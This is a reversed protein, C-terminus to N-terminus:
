ERVGQPGHLSGCTMKLAARSPVLENV